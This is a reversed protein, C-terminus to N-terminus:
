DPCKIDIKQRERGEEQGGKMSNEGLKGEEVNVCTGVAGVPVQALPDGDKDLCPNVVVGLVLVLGLVDHSVNGLGETENELQLLVL